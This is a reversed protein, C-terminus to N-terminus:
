KDGPFKVLKGGYFGAVGGAGLVVLHFLFYIFRLSSGPDAVTPSILRWLVLFLTLLTVIGACAIKIKFVQTLNGGMRYQWDNYGTFIVAPMSILVVVLNYFGAQAFSRSDFMISLALLLVAVPLVGNPIHVSIPHAHLQTLLLSTRDYFPYYKSPIKSRLIDNNFKKVSDSEKTEETAAATDAAQTELQPELESEPTVEVFFSSDAGCVPCKEPPEPGTHIYGCITCRWKKGNDNDSDDKQPSSSSAAELSPEGNLTFSSEDAGCVPCQGPPSEGRPQYGCVGCQWQQDM